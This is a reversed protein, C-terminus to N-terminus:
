MSRWIPEEWFAPYSKDVCEAGTITVERMCAGAAVAAAMAIRHDNAADVAGGALKGRGRIVLGDPLETVDAGLSFLMAATTHLRDSEKSRLRAANVIRTEGGAVSAVAALVPVLDPIDTADIEGGLLTGRRVTVADAAAEIGAGFRRLIDLVARDGQTTGLDLGAVTVGGRSFAGACLFVAANTWDGEVCIEAPPAYQQGGPITYRNEAKTFGIAALRLSEDSMAVYPASVLEGTVTLTSDGNLLPLAYLLGTIFQSSTDGEIFYDGALLRGKCFLSTGEEWIKMGHAALVERLPTIPREPLRGERCFIAEMGLAGVVPLLFRLTSGSEGCRLACARGPLARLPTVRLVGTESADIGAGLTRLCDITAAIDHPIKGAYRLRAEGDGLAAILLLRHLRSKSSPIRVRGHRAGPLLTIDM